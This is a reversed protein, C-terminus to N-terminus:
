YAHKRSTWPSSLPCHSIIFSLATSLTACDICWSLRLDFLWITEASMSERIYVNKLFALFALQMSHRNFVFSIFSLQTLAHLKTYFLLRFNAISRRSIFSLILLFSLSWHNNATWQNFCSEVIDSHIPSLFVYFDRRTETWESSEDWVRILVRRRNKKWGVKKASLDCSPKLRSSDCEIKDIVSWSLGAEHSFEWLM